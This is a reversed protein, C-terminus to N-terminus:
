QAIVYITSCYDPLEKGIEFLADWVKRDVKNMQSHSFPKLFIGTSFKVKLGAKQIDRRLTEVTYIRRHGIRKDNESFDTLHKLIGMKQGIRRHLSRANPVLIHIRGNKQLWRRAWTLVATPNQVHELINAMIIDDFQEEPEWEEFLSCFFKVKAPVLHRVMDIYEQSGEVVTLDFKKALRRTMIGGSCGMELVKPGKMHSMLVDARRNIIYTEIPDNIPDYVHAVSSLREYEKQRFKVKKM